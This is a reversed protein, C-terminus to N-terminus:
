DLEAEVSRGKSQACLEDFRKQAQERARAQVERIQDNANAIDRDLRDIQERLSSRYADFDSQAKMAKEIEEATEYVSNAGRVVPNLKSAFDRLLADVDEKFITNLVTYAFGEIPVFQEVIRTVVNATIKVAHLAQATQLAAISSAKPGLGWFIRQNTLEEKARQYDAVAGQWTAVKEQAVRSARDWANVFGDDCESAPKPDLEGARSVNSSLAIVGVIFGVSYLLFVRM